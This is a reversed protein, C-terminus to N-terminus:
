ELATVCVQGDDSCYAVLDGQIDFDNISLFSSKQTLSENSKEINWYVLEGDENCMLVKNLQQPLIELKWYISNSPCFSFVPHLENLDWITVV